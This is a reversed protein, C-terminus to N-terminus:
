AAWRSVKTFLNSLEMRAQRAQAKSLQRLVKVVVEMGGLSHKRMRFEERILRKVYSRDVARPTVKKSLVVGLRAFEQRKPKVLVQFAAGSETKNAHFVASFQETKTIRFAKPLSYIFVM